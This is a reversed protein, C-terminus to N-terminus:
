IGPVKPDLCTRDCCLLSDTVEVLKTSIKPRLEVFLKSYYDNIYYRVVADDDYSSSPSLQKCRDRILRVWWGLLVM